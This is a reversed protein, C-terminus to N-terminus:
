GRGRPRPATAGTFAILSHGPVTELSRDSLAIKLNAIALRAHERALAEARSGHGQEIADILGLHQNHAVVLIERSAPLEAERMVFASASAFPLATIAELARVLQASDAIAVLMGHFRDNLGVYREFSDYDAQRVVEAIQDSVARMVRIDRRRPGREAAFRAATGELVGRLEIADVIDAQSFERIVYGGGPLARLLGEHELAALALRVPTRSVGLREVLPLESMRDGHGFEGSIILERLRLLARMTQSTHTDRTTTAMPDGGAV